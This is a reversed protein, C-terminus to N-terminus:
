RRSESCCGRWARSSRVCSWGAASGQEAAPVRGGWARACAGLVDFFGPEVESRLAARSPRRKLEASAGLKASPGPLAAMARKGVARPRALSRVDSAIVLGPRRASMAAIPLEDVLGGDVFREGEREVPPLLGPIAAAALVADATPGRDLIEAVGLRLNTAVTFCERELSEFELEGLWTEVCRRLGEPDLLSRRPARALSRFVGSDLWAETLGRTMDEVSFDAAALVAVGAGASTGAFADIELGADRLGAIVGIHAFARAGGGNLVLGVSQGRLHRILAALGRREGPRLHHVRRACAAQRQAACGKSPGRAREHVIVLERPGPEDISACTQAIARADESARAVVLYLASPEAGREVAEDVPIWPDLRRELAAALARLEPAPAGAIVRVRQCQSVGSTRGPAAALDVQAREFKGASPGGARRRRSDRFTSWTGMVM